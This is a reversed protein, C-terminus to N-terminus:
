GRRSSLVDCVTAKFWAHPVRIDRRTEAGRQLAIVVARRSRKAYAYILGRLRHDYRDGFVKSALADIDNDTTGNQPVSTEEKGVGRDREPPPSPYISETHTPYISSPSPTTGNIPVIRDSGGTTGNQPVIGALKIAEERAVEAVAQNLTVEPPFLTPHKFDGRSFARSYLLVPHAEVPSVTWTGSVPLIYAGIVAALLERDAYSPSIVPVRWRTWDPLPRLVLDNKHDGERQLLGAAVADRLGESVRNKSMGTALYLPRHSPFRAEPLGLWYSFDLAVEFVARTASRLDFYRMARMAVLYLQQYM